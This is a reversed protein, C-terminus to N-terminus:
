PSLQSRFVTKIHAIRKELREVDAARGLRGAHGGFSATAAAELNKIGEHSSHM